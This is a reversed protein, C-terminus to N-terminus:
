VGPFPDPGGRDPVALFLVVTVIALQVGSTRALSVFVLLVGM